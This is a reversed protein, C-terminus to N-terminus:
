FKGRICIYPPGGQLDGTCDGLRSCTAYNATCCGANRCDKPHTESLLARQPRHHDTALAQATHRLRPRSRGGAHRFDSEGGLEASTAAVFPQRWHCVAGCLGTFGPGQERSPRELDEACHLNSTGLARFGLELIIGSQPTWSVSQSVLPRLRITTRRRRTRDILRPFFAHFLCAVSLFSLDIAAVLGVPPIPRFIFLAISAGALLRRLGPRRM